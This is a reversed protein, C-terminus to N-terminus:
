GKECLAYQYRGDQWTKVQKWPQTKFLSEFEVAALVTARTPERYGNQFRTIKALLWMALLPISAWFAYRPEAVFCRGGAKLVRFMESVAHERESLVTFLRSAILIDFSSDAQSLDLVNVSEFYCNRLGLSRAKEKARELQRNSQDVGLVSIEPFQAALRSSYFGPGCGLEIIQAGPDPKNQPWLAKIMRATDDRFMQERCFIYFWAFHEFLSGTEEVSKRKALSVTAETPLSHAEIKALQNMNGNFRFNRWNQRLESHEALTNKV